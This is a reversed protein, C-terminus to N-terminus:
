EEKANEAGATDIKVNGFFIVGKNYGTKFPKDFHYIQGLECFDKLRTNYEKGKIENFLMASITGSDVCYEKEQQDYYHGDGYATRYCAIKCNERIFLEGFREPYLTHGCFLKWDENTMVYCLDGIYYKGAPLM